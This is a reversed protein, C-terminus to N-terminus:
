PRNQKEHLPKRLVLFRNDANWDNELINANLNRKDGNWNLNPVNRHGDANSFVDVYQAPAM